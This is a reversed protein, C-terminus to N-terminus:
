RWSALSTRECPLRYAPSCAPPAGPPATGSCPALLPGLLGRSFSTERRLGHLARRRALLRRRRSGSGSGSGAGLRGARWGSRPRAWARPAGAYPRRARVDGLVDQLAGGSGDGCAAPRGLLLRDVLGVDGSVALGTSRTTPTPPAPTFATSRMISACTSPTSNMATLVSMCDSSCDCRASARACRCRRWGRGPSRPRVRREAALRRDLLVVLQLAQELAGVHDEDGGAGTAAGARAGAGHHGPDGALDPASVTPM